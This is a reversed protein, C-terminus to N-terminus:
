ENYNMSLISFSDQLPKPCEYKLIKMLECM